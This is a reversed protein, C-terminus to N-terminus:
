QKHRLLIFKFNASGDNDHDTKRRELFKFYSRPANSSVCDRSLWSVLSVYDRICLFICPLFAFVSHRLGRLSGLDAINLSHWGSAILAEDCIMIGKQVTENTAIVAQLDFLKLYELLFHNDPSPDLFIATASLYQTAM